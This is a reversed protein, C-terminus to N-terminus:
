TVGINKRMVEPLFLSTGPGKVRPLHYMGRPIMATAHTQKMTIRKSNGDPDFGAASVILLHYDM